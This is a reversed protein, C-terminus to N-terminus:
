VSCHFLQPYISRRYVSLPLLAKRNAARMNTRRTLDVTSSSWHPAIASHYQCPSHLASPSFVTGTHRRRNYIDNLIKRSRVRARAVFSVSSWGGSGIRSRTFKAKKSNHSIFIWKGSWLLCVWEGNCVGRPKYRITFYNSNTRLEVCCMRVSHPCFKSNNFTLTYSHGGRHNLPWLKQNCICLDRTRNGASGSKRLLLPDPVPDM